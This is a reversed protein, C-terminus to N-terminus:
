MKPVFVKEYDHPIEENFKEVKVLLSNYGSNHPFYNSPSPGTLSNENGGYDIDKAEDMDTRPGHPLAVCGPMISELLSLRRVVKGWKSSILVVDGDKLGLDKGDSANMFVPNEFAEQLWPLNDLTTHSRRPYHPQYLQFPYEGKIKNEWDAFSAEYGENPVIYNAYPKIPESNWGVCNLTDAKVQCYIEFKGSASPRPNNEPDDIFDKYGIWRKADTMEVQYVGQTRLEDFGIVGQQPTGTVGFKDIDEQTITM